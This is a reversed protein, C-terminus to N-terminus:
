YIKLESPRYRCTFRLNAQYSIKKKDDFSPIVGILGGEMNNIGQMFMIVLEALNIVVSYSDQRKSCYIHINYNLLRTTNDYTTSRSELENRAEEFVILPYETDEIIRGVKVNEINSNKEVYEKLRKFLVKNPLFVDKYDPIM